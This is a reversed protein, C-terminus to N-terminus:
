VINKQKSKKIIIGIVVGSIVIIALIIVLKNEYIYEYIDYFNNKTDSNKAKITVYFKAITSHGAM